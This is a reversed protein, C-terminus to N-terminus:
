RRRGAGKGRPRTAAEPVKEVPLLFTVQAPHDVEVVRDRQGPGRLRIRGREVRFGTNTRFTARRPAYHIHRSPSNRRGHMAQNPFLEQLLRQASPPAHEFCTIAGEGALYIIDHRDADALGGSLRSRAFDNAGFGLIVFFVPIIARM